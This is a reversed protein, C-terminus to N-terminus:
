RPDHTIVNFEIATYGRAVTDDIFTKYDIVPLSVVFWATRGLIPFPTGAQDVLYRKDGSYKVPFAPAAQAGAACLLLLLGVLWTRPRSALRTCNTRSLSALMLSLVDLLVHLSKHCKQNMKYRFHRSKSM